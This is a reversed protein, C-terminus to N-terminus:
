SKRERVEAVRLLIERLDESPLDLHSRLVEACKTLNALWRGHRVYGSNVLCRQCVAEDGKHEQDRPEIQLIMAVDASLSMLHDATRNM